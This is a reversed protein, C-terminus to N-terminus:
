PQASSLGKDRLEEKEKFEIISDFLAQAIKQRFRKTKLLREERKNSLFPAEFLIAPMSAGVLVYFGAQDVGRDRLQTRVKMNKQVLSALFESERAFEAQAMALLIYNEETLDQYQSKSEEYKIVSNERLAVEMATENKAPKLFYTSFGGAKSYKSSNCHISIFLKGGQQNAFRTRDSLPVFRDDSRTLLVKLDTKKELLNKLRRAVDLVVAKEKLGTPGIAGPDKGGHGPDIVICDIKWRQQENELLRAIDDSTQEPKEPSRHSDIKKTVLSINVLPPDDEQWVNYELVTQSLMFTLQVSEPLEDVILEKVAGAPPVADFARRNIKAGMLTISLRDGRLSAGSIDFKKLCSLRILTGNEKVDYELAYVDFEAPLIEITWRYREFTIQAPYINRFVELFADLPAWYKEELLVVEAPLQLIREGVVAFANDATWKLRVSGISYQIKRKEQNVFTRIKLADAFGNLDLYLLDGQQMVAVSSEPYPGQPFVIRLRDECWGATSLVGLCILLASAIYRQPVIRLM